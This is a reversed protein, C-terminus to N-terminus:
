RPKIHQTIWNLADMRQEASEITSAIEFARQIEGRKALLGVITALHIDRLIPDSQERALRLAGDLDGLKVRIEYPKSQRFFQVIM